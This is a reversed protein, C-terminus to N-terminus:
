TGNVLREHEARERSVIDNIFERGGKMHTFAAYGGELFAQLGGVGAANAPARMMRLLTLLFPMKALKDLASGIIETLDIQHERLDFRGVRAYARAYSTATITLARQDDQEARLKTAMEHDLKESLADMELAAALTALANDPLFKVLVRIVREIDADRQTLDETSYLETLFFKAAPGFRESQLMQAHTAELRRQQYTRLAMRDVAALPTLTATSRAARASALNARLKAEFSDPKAMRSAYRLPISTPAARGRGAPYKQWLNCLHVSIINTHREDAAHVYRNSHPQAIARLFSM